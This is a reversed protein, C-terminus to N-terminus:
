FFPRRLPRGGNKRVSIVQGSDLDRDVYTMADVVTDDGITTGQYVFSNAGIMARDGIRCNGGIRAGPHIRCHEGLRANHGVVAHYNILAHSSITAQASIIAYAAVYTGAGVSASPSIFALPHIVSRPHLGISGAVDRCRNRLKLDSMSLIFGADDRDKAHEPLDDLCIRRDGDPMEEAPVVFYIAATATRTSEAAERIELATSSGGFIYLSSM